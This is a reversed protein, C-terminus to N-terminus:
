KVEEYKEGEQYGDTLGAAPIALAISIAFIFLYVAKNM